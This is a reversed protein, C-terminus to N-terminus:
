NSPTEDYPVGEVRSREGETLFLVALPGIVLVSM